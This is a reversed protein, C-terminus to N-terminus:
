NREQKDEYYEQILQLSNEGETILYMKTSQLGYQQMYHRELKTKPKLCVFGEFGRKFAEKCVFAILCGAIRSFEQAQGVNEKSAALLRIELAYDQSREEMSLLGIPEEKGEVTLKYVHFAKEKNWNFDFRKTKNIQSIEAAAIKTITAAQKEGTIKNLVYM